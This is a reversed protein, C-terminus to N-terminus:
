WGEVKHINNWVLNPFFRRMFWGLKAQGTVMCWFKSKGLDREVAALVTEPALEEGESQQMLKPWTSEKGQNLLPTAVAPPCVCVFKVGSDRNEHWLVETYAVVAAKSANYGGMLLSPIIGSMSAFSAFEGSGREVMGPVTARAVCVLGGYNISMLKNTLSPDQELLRGFPMIAACNYVRDLPGHAAEFENVARSVADFDTIDVVYPHIKDNGAATEQLGAENVDLIAVHAGAAAFQQAALRGMGSGGGTVLASKGQFAM